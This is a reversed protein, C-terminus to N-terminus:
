GTGRLAFLVTHGACDPDEAVFAAVHLDEAALRRAYDEPSLSAHYVAEGGVSGLVEGEAPGVTLLLGGGPAVHRALRPIMAHQDERSLHFFSDWAIVGRFTEGLDLSRMDAHLWREDPMRTRALDLMASSADVGCIRRGQQVVYRAIPEGAGCGVDLVRDGPSTCALLRDLWAREFLSRSRGADWALAQREYVGHLGRRAAALETM